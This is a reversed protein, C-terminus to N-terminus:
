RHLMQHVCGCFSQKVGLVSATDASKSQLYLVRRPCRYSLYNDWVPKFSNQACWHSATSCSCLVLTPSPSSMSAFMTEKRTYKQWMWPIEQYRKFKRRWHYSYTAQLVPAARNGPPQIQQGPTHPLKHARRHHRPCFCTGADSCLWVM